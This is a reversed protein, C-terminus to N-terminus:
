RGLGGRLMSPNVVAVPVCLPDGGQSAVKGGGPIAPLHCQSPQGHYWEAPLHHSHPALRGAEGPGAPSDDPLLRIGFLAPDQPSCTASLKEKVELGSSRPFSAVWGAGLGVQGAHLFLSLWLRYFQDPVEPNLFPLLGCVDDM